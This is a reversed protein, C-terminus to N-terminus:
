GASSGTRRPGSRSTRSFSASYRPCLTLDEILVNVPSPQSPIVELRVPDILAKRSIAAVERAMGLHGWLDPRHTISKNDIDIIHDPVCGPMPAGVQSDLEIIGAADRNIGLEAASALMGDSEIGHILKKGVPAYATIMGSRCNPAGCVVTRAGYRGTQVLAKVNHSGPIPEVSEVRASVAESLYGGFLEIGECEATKMTILHELEIAPTDLDRVLERIWNYSFKV